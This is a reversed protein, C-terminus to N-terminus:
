VPICGSGTGIDIIRVEGQRNKLDDHIWAVMEETEPRPILVDSNVRFVLGSFHQCGTVYQLPTGQALAQLDQEFFVPVSVPDSSSIDQPLGNRLKDEVYAKAIAASEESDYLHSIKEQIIIRIESLNM